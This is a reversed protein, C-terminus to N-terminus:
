SKRLANLLPRLHHGSSSVKRKEHACARVRTGTGLSVSSVPPGAGTLVRRKSVRERVVGTMLSLGENKQLAKCRSRPSATIQKPNTIINSSAGFKRRKNAFTIELMVKEGCLDIRAERPRAVGDVAGAGVGRGAVVLARAQRAERPIAPYADTLEIQTYGSSRERSQM